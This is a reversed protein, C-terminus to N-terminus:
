GGFYVQLAKIEVSTCWFVHTPMRSYIECFEDPKREVLIMKIGLSGEGSGIGPTSMETKHALDYITFGSIQGVRETEVNHEIMPFTRFWRQFDFSKPDGRFTDLPGCPQDIYEDGTDGGYFHLGWRSRTGTQGHAAACFLLIIVLSVVRRAFDTPCM